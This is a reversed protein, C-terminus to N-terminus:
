PVLRTHTHTCTRAHTHIYAHICTRSHAHAHTYIQSKPSRFYAVQDFVTVPIGQGHAALGLLAAVTVVGTGGVGCVLVDGGDAPPPPPPPISVSRLEQSLGLSSPPMPQGTATVFSPCFGKTCSYDQTCASQDITRKRGLPTELPSVAVCNSALGCDGCGECVGHHIAVKEPAPPLKGRKRARRKETACAQDIFDADM